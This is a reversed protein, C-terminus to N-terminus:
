RDMVINWLYRTYRLVTSTLRYGYPANYKKRFREGWVSCDRSSSCLERSEEQIKLYRRCEEREIFSTNGYGPLVRKRPYVEGKRELLLLRYKLVERKWHLTNQAAIVEDISVADVLLSGDNIGADILENVLYSRSIWLNTGRPEKNYRTLWADMFTVDACEAFM